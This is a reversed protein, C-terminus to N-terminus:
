KSPMSSMSCPPLSSILPKPPRAPKVVKALIKVPEKKNQKTNQQTTKPKQKQNSKKEAPSFVGALLELKVRKAKAYRSLQGVMGRAREAICSFFFFREVLQRGLCARVM